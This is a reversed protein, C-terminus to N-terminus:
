CRVTRGCGVKHAFYHRTGMAGLFDGMGCRLAESSRNIAPTYGNSESHYMVAERMQQVAAAGQKGLTRCFFNASRCHDAWFPINVPGHPWGRVVPGTHQLVREHFIVMDLVHRPM